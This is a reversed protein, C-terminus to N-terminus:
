AYLDISYPLNPVYLKSKYWNKGQNSMTQTRFMQSAPLILQIRRKKKEENQELVYIFRLIQKSQIFDARTSAHNMLASM